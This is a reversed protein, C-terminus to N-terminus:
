NAKKAVIEQPGAAPGGMGGGGSDTEITFKIENGAAKGKYQTKMEMGFMQAVVTFSVDDGTVKGESIQQADGRQTKLTGTVAAKGKEEFVANSVQWDVIAGTLKDGSVQFTFVRESNGGMMPNSVQAIWKGNIDAAVGVAAFAVIMLLVVTAKMIKKEEM